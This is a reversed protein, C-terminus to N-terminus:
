LRMKGIFAAKRGIPNEGNRSVPTRRPFNGQLPLSAPYRGSPHLLRFGAPLLFGCAPADGEAQEGARVRHVHGPQRWFFACRERAGKGGYQRVAQPRLYRGAEPIQDTGAPAQDHKGRGYPRGNGGPFAHLAPAPIGSRLGRRQPFRLHQGHGNRHPTRRSRASRSKTRTLWSKWARWWTPTTPRATSSRPVAAWSSTESNARTLDPPTRPM